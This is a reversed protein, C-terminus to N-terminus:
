ARMGEGSNGVVKDVWAVVMGAGPVGEGQKWGWGWHEVGDVEDEKDVM